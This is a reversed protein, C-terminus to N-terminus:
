KVRRDVENWVGAIGRLEFEHRADKTTFSPVKFEFHPKDVSKFRGGWRLGVSEGLPGLENYDREDWSWLGDKCFVLDCALGYVHWSEWMSANTVRKQSEFLAQQREPTRLTEFVRVDWGKEACLRLLEVVRRKLETHLLDVDRIIKNIGSQNNPM